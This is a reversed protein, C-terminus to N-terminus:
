LLRPKKAQSGSWFPTCGAPPTKEALGCSRCCPHNPDTLCVATSRPLPDRSGVVWGNGQDAVSCDNEDSLMVVAVLSDPRLFAAREALVDGDTGKPVTVGNEVVVDAPPEPDVLFRYWAELGAEYGCGFEGTAQVLNKFQAELTAYDVTGPPAGAPQVGKQDPDWALFGLNNYTELGRETGILHARDNEQLRSTCAPSGHGGLSSSIVGIHIDKVAAFEPKADAPCGSESSASVVQDADDVCAPYVLRRLLQPVAQALIEQKDAMSISNDIMFLLDIKDVANQSIQEVFVNTTNPGITTVPRDLCGALLAALSAFTLGGWWCRHTRPKM